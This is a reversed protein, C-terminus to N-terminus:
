LRVPQRPHQELEAVRPEGKAMAAQNGTQQTANEAHQHMGIGLINAALRPMALQLWVRNELSALNNESVSNITAILLTIVKRVGVSSYRLERGTM